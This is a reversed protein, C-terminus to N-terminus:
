KKLDKLLKKANISLYRDFTRKSIFFLPNVVNLYIWTQSAGRAKHELVIEQIAKARM